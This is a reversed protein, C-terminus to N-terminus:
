KKFIPFEKKGQVYIITGVTWKKTYLYGFETNSLKFARESYSALHKAAPVIDMTKYYEPVPNKMPLYNTEVLSHNSVKYLYMTKSSVNHLQVTDGDASVEVVCTYDGQTWQCNLPKLNLTRIIKKAKLDYVFLGFYGHFIVRDISAYDLQVMDAGVDQNFTWQAPSPKLKSPLIKITPSPSLTQTPASTPTVSLAPTLSLNDPTITNGPQETVTPKNNTVTSQSPTKKPNTLLGVGIAFVIIVVVFTIGFTSKKYRLINKIRHKVNGEGFALPTGSLIRREAALSLLSLSYGKKVDGGMEKIVREDCSLEMDSSMVLFALWVIPNFWHIALIFFALQKLIPDFRRIHTKEHLIIFRRESENLGEPLYIKPRFLGLVFPTKLNTAEYINEGLPISHKLSQKLIIISIMSYALLTIIGLIWLISGIQVYNIVPNTTTAGLPSPLNQNVYHDIVSVGSNIKPTSQHMIDNPITNTHIPLLSLVSEFSIPCILRFAAVSWLSYSIIKPSRRLPLRILLIILIVYSSTLSMNLVTLFLNNM